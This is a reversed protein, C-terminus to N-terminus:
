ETIKIVLEYDEGAQSEQIDTITGLSAAKRKLSEAYVDRVVDNLESNREADTEELKRAIERQMSTEAEQREEDSIAISRELAAQEKKRRDGENELDRDGRVTITRSRELTRDIEVEAEVTMTDLDITEKVDGRMRTLVRGDSGEEEEWGKEMLKERLIERQQEPPVIQTLVITKTRKDKANVKEQVSASVRIVYSQSM